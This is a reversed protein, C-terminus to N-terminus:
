AQGDAARKIADRIRVYTGCRCINGAMAADIDADDPRPTAELLAAASMIQGSQCYGCQIVELDLWAKQVKAGPATAGVGEITTITKGSLAGVPLVCSRVAKGDIHVTCAGCQALGCGFHPNNLGIDDRLAYLLPMDPDADIAHDKGNVNLTFAQRM